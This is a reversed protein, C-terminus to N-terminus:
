IKFTLPDIGTDEFFSNPNSHWPGTLFYFSGDEMKFTARDGGFGRSGKYGPKNEEPEASVYIHELFNEAIGVLWTSGSKGEYKRFKVEEAM